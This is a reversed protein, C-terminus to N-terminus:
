PELRTVDRPFMSAERVNQEDLLRMTLRELGIGLGGHPPMGYKFIMLYSAIDEPDMGRKEMKDTIERYDHLRQGGTTVELGRFMLDFSLTFKPDEPDDMAYFPRKKSPYHTVFVFDSGYEEKFYRGILLEEEPELDYPNRIKRDYKRSVLEKAQDFRVAPIRGVEPLTVGLMDLEKKYEQELLRMVYQLMGTEMDMVDRFSDIYGMEFDLSTYENLHRTTNHKEARFVPAAEFVRDYVGVMTQKYFQPSQGLEAKKNFYELKFVNSGGEAGRAVIKPTRIETFGQSLLYDRFGRVIGEQIKFKARERVNRLSIPRLSLKTELSTNLKWKSVALPLPEAPQSLVRIEKLRIEFGQPARKEAKVVGMVEVASEEKLDRIDFNTGGAEYVCQVLGRSKRLIVFAVEGMHRITHVAGNMRIEKGEYEGELVERIDLVRKEKVGNVFEM